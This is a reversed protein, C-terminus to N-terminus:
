EDPERELIIVDEVMRIVDGEASFKGIESASM